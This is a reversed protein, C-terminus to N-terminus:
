SPFVPLRAGGTVRHFEYALSCPFKIGRLRLPFVNHLLSVLSRYFSGGTLQDLFGNEPVCAPDRGPVGTRTMGHCASTRCDFPLPAEEYDRCVMDNILKSVRIEFEYKTRGTCQLAGIPPLAMRRTRYAQVHSVRNWQRASMKVSCIIQSRQFNFEGRNCTAQSEVLKMCFAPNDPWHLVCEARYANREVAVFSNTGSPNSEPWIGKPPIGNWDRSLPFM